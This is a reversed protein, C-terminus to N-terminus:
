MYLDWIGHKRIREKTSYARCGACIKPCPKDPDNITSKFKMYYENNWIKKFDEEFVNGFSYKRLMPRNNSMMVACCPLVYGPMMIYPELWAICEEIPPLTEEEAHTFQFEIGGRRTKLEQVVDRPVKEVYYKFIEKFYLLGTFEVITSSGGWELQKGM